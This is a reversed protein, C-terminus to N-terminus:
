EKVRKAIVDLLLPITTVVGVGLLTWGVAKKQERTLMDGLLLAVGAGAAARTSAILALEPLSIRTEIM